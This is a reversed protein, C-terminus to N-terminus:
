RSSSSCPWRRTPKSSHRHAARGRPDALVLERGPHVPVAHRHLRSLARARRRHNRPDPHRHHRRDTGARGAAQGPDARAAPDPPGRRPGAGGHDGLHDAGGAHDAGPRAPVPRHSALPSTMARGARDPAADPGQRLARGGPGGSACIRRGAGRCLLRRRAAALRGLTLALGLLPHGQGVILDATQACPASIAM